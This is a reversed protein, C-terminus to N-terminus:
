TICHPFAIRTHYHIRHFPPIYPHVSGFAGVHPGIFRGALASHAFVIDHYRLSHLLFLSSSLRAPSLAHHSVVSATLSPIPYRSPLLYTAVQGLTVQGVHGNTFPLSLPSKPLTPFPLRGTLLLPTGRPTTCPRARYRPVCPISILTPCSVNLRSIHICLSLTSANLIADRTAASDSKWPEAPTGIRGIRLPFPRVPRRSRLGRMDVQTRACAHRTSWPERQTPRHAPTIMFSSPFSIPLPPEIRTSAPPAEAERSFRRLSRPPRHGAM